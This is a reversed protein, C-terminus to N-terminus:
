RIVTALWEVPMESLKRMEADRYSLFSSRVAAKNEGEPLILLTEKIVATTKAIENMISECLTM